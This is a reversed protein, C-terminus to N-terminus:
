NLNPPIKETDPVTDETKVEPDGPGFLHVKLDSISMDMLTDESFSKTLLNKKVAPAPTAVVLISAPIFM